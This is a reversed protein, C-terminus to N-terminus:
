GAATSVAPCWPPSLASCRVATSTSVTAFAARASWSATARQQWLLGDPTAWVDNLYEGVSGTGGMVLLQSPEDTYLPGLPAAGMGRGAELLRRGTVGRLWAAMGAGSPTAVRSPPRYVAVGHAQRAPWQAHLAAALWYEPIRALSPAPPTHAHAPTAHQSVSHNRGAAAYRRHCHVMCRQHPRRGCDRGRAGLHTGPVLGVDPLRTTVLHQRQLVYDVAGCRRWVSIVPPLALPSASGPM